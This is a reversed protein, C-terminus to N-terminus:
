EEDGGVVKGGRPRAVFAALIEIRGDWAALALALHRQAGADVHDHVGEGAVVLGILHMHGGQQLPKSLSARTSPTARKSSANPPHTARRRREVARQGKGVAM